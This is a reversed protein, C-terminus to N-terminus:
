LTGTVHPTAGSDLLLPVSSPVELQCAVSKGPHVFTGHLHPMGYPDRGLRVDLGGPTLPLPLGAARAQRALTGM